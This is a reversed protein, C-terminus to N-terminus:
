TQHRRPYGYKAAVDEAAEEGMHNIMERRVSKRLNALERLSSLWVWYEEATPERNTWYLMNIRFREKTPHRGLQDQVKAFAIEWLHRMGSSLNTLEVGESRFRAIAVKEYTLALAESIRDHIIEVGVDLGAGVIEAIKAGKLQNATKGSRWEAVHDASRRGKGKGVYFPLNPELILWLMCM